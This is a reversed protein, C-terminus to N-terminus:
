LFFDLCKILFYDNYIFLCFGEWIKFFIRVKFFEVVKVYFWEVGICYYVYETLLIILEFDRLLFYLFFFRFMFIFGIVDLSCCIGVLCNIGLLLFGRRLCFKWYLCFYFCMFWFCMEMVGSIVWCLYAGRCFTWAEEKGWFVFSCFCVVLM